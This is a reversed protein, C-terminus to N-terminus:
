TRWSSAPTTTAGFQDVGALVTMKQRDKESLKEVGWPM